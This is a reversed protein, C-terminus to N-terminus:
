DTQEHRHRTLPYESVSNVKSDPDPQVTWDKNQVDSIDLILLRKEGFTITKLKFKTYFRKFFM